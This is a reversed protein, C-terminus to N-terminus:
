KAPDHEVPVVLECALGSPKVRRTDFVFAMREDNGDKGKTVDTMIVGWDPGLARLMHRLARLDGRVEQIAVVDFRSVIEAIARVDRFDRRPSDDPGSRWKKTLGGFARLNWTAVLLNRDVIKARVSGDLLASLQALEAVVEPPPDAVQPE